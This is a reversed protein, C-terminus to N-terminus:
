QKYTLVMASSINSYKEWSGQSGFKYYHTSGFSPIIIPLDLRNGDTSHDIWEVTIIIDEQTIIKFESLDVTVWDEYKKYADVVINSQNIRQDPKNNKITYMNIRFRVMEFNNDKIFFKFSTLLSPKTNGLIFRKGVESGLNLNKINPNTFLVEHKTETKFKGVSYTKLNGSTIIVEDLKEITNELSIIIPITINFNDQITIEKPKFGLCSIKLTDLQISNDLVLSFEGNENSVTGLSKNLIGINAYKIPKNLSDTVTGKIIKEQSSIFSSYLVAFIILSLNKM